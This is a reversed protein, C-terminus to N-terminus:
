RNEVAVVEYIEDLEVELMDGVLKLALELHSRENDSGDNPGCSLVCTAEKSAKLEQLSLNVEEETRGFM